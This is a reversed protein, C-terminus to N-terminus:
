SGRGATTIAMSHKGFSETNRHYSTALKPLRELNKCAHFVVAICPTLAEVACLGACTATGWMVTGYEPECDRV